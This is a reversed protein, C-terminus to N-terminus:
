SLAMAALAISAYLFIEYKWWSSPSSFGSIGGRLLHSLIRTYFPCFYINVLEWSINFDFFFSATKSIILLSDYKKIHGVEAAGERLSLRSLDGM